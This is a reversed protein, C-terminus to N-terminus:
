DSPKQGPGACVLRYLLLLHGSAHFKLYTFFLHLFPIISYQIAFNFASILQTTVARSIQVKTKAYAFKWNKM